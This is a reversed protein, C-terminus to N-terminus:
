ARLRPNLWGRALDVLCFAVFVILVFYVGVGQLIPLDHRSTAQVALSGLGQLAFVSEVLTTGLLLGVIYLGVLTVVNPMANRLAHRYLISRESVGRARLARVYERDLERLMGERTQKAVMAMGGVGLTCVPLISLRLWEVPDQSFPIWGGPPVLKLTQSFLLIMLLGLWFSPIAFGVTSVSDIVRGLRGGLRATAIGLPVGLCIAVLTAGIILTLTV